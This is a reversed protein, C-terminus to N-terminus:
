KKLRTFPFPPLTYIFTIFVELSHCPKFHNQQKHNRRAELLETDTLHGATGERLYPQTGARLWPWPCCSSLSSCVPVLCAGRQLQGSQEAAKHAKNERSSCKYEMPLLTAAEPLGGPCPLVGSGGSMSLSAKGAMASGAQECECVRVSVCGGAGGLRVARM